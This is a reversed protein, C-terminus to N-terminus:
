SIDRKSRVDFAAQLGREGEKKKKKKEKKYRDQDLMRPVNSRGKRRAICADICAYEHM